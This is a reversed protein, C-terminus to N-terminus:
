WIFPIVRKTQKIYASYGPFHRCLLDEEFFMKVILGAVLALSIFLKIYDFQGALIAFAFIFISTYMPHRILKYPGVSVMVGNAVPYPVVNFNGLHMVAMAWFALFGSLGLSLFSWWPLALWNTFIALLGICTFQITVLIKGKM